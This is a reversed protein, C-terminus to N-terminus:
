TINGVLNLKFPSFESSDNFLEKLKKYETYNDVDIWIIDSFDIYGVNFRKKIARFVVDSVGFHYRENEIRQAIPMLSKKNMVFVGMDLRNYSPLTKGLEQIRHKYGFVKTCDDLDYKGEIEMPDTALLIDEDRYGKVIRSYINDSFIHDSMSLVFKDSEVSSMGLYLSYGNEREQFKNPVLNIELGRFDHYNKKLFKKCSDIFKKGDAIQEDVIINIRHINSKYMAGIIHFIMICNRVPLLFKKFSNDKFNFRSAYGAALIVSEM